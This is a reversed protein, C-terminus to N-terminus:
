VTTATFLTCCCHRGNCCIACRVVELAVITSTDCSRVFTVTVVVTTISGILLTTGRNSACRVVELAVITSADCCRVFTVTVVVTTISGILFITRFLCNVKYKGNLVFHHNKNEMSEICIHTQLGFLLQNIPRLFFQGTSHIFM